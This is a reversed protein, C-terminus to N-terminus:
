SIVNVFSRVLPPHKTDPCQSQYAINEFPYPIEYLTANLHLHFAHKIRKKCKDSNSFRTLRELAQYYHETWSFSENYEFNNLTDLCDHSPFFTFILILLLSQLFM